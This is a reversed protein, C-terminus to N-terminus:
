TRFFPTATREWLAAARRLTAIKRGIGRRSSRQPREKRLRRALREGEAEALLAHHHERLMEIDNMQYIVEAEKASV